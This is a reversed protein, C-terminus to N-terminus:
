TFRCLCENKVVIGVYLFFGRWTQSLLAPSTRGQKGSCSSTPRLMKQGAQEAEVTFGKQILKLFLACAMVSRLYEDYKKGEHERKKNLIQTFNNERCRYASQPHVTKWRASRAFWQFPDDHQPLIRSKEKQRQETKRGGGQAKTCLPPLRCTKQRINQRTKGTKEQNPGTRAPQADHGHQNPSKKLDTRLLQEKGQLAVGDPLIQM